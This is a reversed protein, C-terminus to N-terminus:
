RAPLPKERRFIRSEKGYKDLLREKDSRSITGAEPDILSGILLNDFMVDDLASGLEKVEERLQRSQKAEHHKIWLGAGFVLVVTAWLLDRITFQPLRM